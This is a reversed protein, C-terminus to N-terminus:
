YLVVRRLLVVTHREDRVVLPPLLRWAAAFRSGARAVGCRRRLAAFASAPLAAQFGDGGLADYRRAAAFVAADLSRGDDGGSEDGREGREGGDGREGEGGAAHDSRWALDQLKAYSQTGLTRAGRSM